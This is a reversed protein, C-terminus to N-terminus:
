FESFSSLLSCYEHFLSINVHNICYLKVIEVQISNDILLSSKFASFDVKFM